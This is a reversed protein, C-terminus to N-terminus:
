VRLSVKIGFLTHGSWQSGTAMNGGRPLVTTLAERPTRSAPPDIGSRTVGFVYFSPPKRKEAQRRAHM